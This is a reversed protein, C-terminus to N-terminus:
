ALWQPPHIRHAPELCNSPAAHRFVAWPLLYLMSEIADTYGDQRNGEWNISHKTAVARMAREIETAYRDTGEALDFTQYGNLIYGWTDALNNDFPELTSVNVSNYWLGEDTRGTVLIRDLFQQLPKRYRDAQPRNQM